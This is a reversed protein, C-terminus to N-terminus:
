YPIPSGKAVTVVGCFCKSGRCDRQFNVNQLQFCLGGALGARQETNDVATVPLM